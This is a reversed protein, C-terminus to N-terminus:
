GGESGQKIPYLGVPQNEDSWDEKIGTQVIEVRSKTLEKLELGREHNFDNPQFQNVSMNTIEGLAGFDGQWASDTPEDSCGDGTETYEGDTVMCFGDPSGSDRGQDLLKLV